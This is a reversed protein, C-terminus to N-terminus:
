IRKKLQMGVEYISGKSQVLSGGRKGGGRQVGSPLSSPRGYHPCVLLGESFSLLPECNSLRTFHKHLTLIHLGLVCVVCLHSAAHSWLMTIYSKRKTEEICKRGDVYRTNAKRFQTSGMTPKFQPDPAGTVSWECCGPAGISIIAQLMVYYKLLFTFLYLTEWAFM